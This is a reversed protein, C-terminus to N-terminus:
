RHWVSRNTKDIVCYNPTSGASGGAAAWGPSVFTGLLAGRTAEGVGIQASLVCIGAAM